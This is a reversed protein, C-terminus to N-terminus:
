PKAGTGDWAKGAGADILASVLDRGDPLIVNALWRGYKDGKTSVVTVKGLEPAFSCAIMMSALGASREAGVVEPANYGLLRFHQRTTLYFGLDVELEVTDGDVWRIVTAPYVRPPKM